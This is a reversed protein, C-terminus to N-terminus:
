IFRCKEHWKTAPAVCGGSETGDGELLHGLRAEREVSESRIVVVEGKSVGGIRSRDRPQDAVTRSSIVRSFVGCCRIGCCTIALRCEMGPSNKRHRRDSLRSIEGRRLRKPTHPPATRRVTPFTAVVRVIADSPHIYRLRRFCRRKHWIRRIDCGGPM